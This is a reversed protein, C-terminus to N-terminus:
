APNAASQRAGTLANLVVAVLILAGGELVIREPIESLLLWAWVPALMVEFLGFLSIESAPVTRSGLTFIALGLGLVFAGLAIAGLTSYPSAAIPQGQSMLVAAAVFMAFFAGLIVNPLSDRAHGYRLTVTFISFGLASALASLTGIAAGDTISMGGIMRWIGFAAILIAAWTMPRVKEGLIVRGLLATLFPTASFLFVANALPLTQLAHIGGGFAAVLGLAGFIGVLGIGRLATVPGTGSRWWIFASLVPIMGVSRWFLIQWTDMPQLARICVGMTSWMSSAIIIMAVGTGYGAARM